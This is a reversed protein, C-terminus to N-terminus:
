KKCGKFKQICFVIIGITGITGLFGISSFLIRKLKNKELKNLEQIVDELYDYDSVTGSENFYNKETQIIQLQKKLQELQEKNKIKESNEELQVIEKFLQTYQDTLNEGDKLIIQIEENEIKEIPEYKKEGFKRHFMGIVKGNGIYYLSADDRDNLEVLNMKGIYISGNLSKLLNNPDIITELNYLYKNKLKNKSFIIQM